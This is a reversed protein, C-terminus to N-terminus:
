TLQRRHDGDVVITNTGLVEVVHNPTEFQLRWSRSKHDVFSKIGATSVHDEIAIDLNEPDTEEVEAITWVIQEIVNADM